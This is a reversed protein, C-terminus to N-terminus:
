AARETEGSSAVVKSLSRQVRREGDNGSPGHHRHAAVLMLGAGLLFGVTGVGAILWYFDSLSIM